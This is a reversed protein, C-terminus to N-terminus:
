AKPPSTAEEATTDAMVASGEECEETEMVPEM